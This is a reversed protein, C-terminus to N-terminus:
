TLRRRRSRRCCCHHRAPALHSRHAKSSGASLSSLTKTFGVLLVRAAVFPAGSARRTAAAAAATRASALTTSCLM